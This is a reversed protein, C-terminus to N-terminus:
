LSAFGALPEAPVTAAAESAPQATKAGAITGPLVEPALAGLSVYIKLLDDVKMEPVPTIATEAVLVLAGSMPIPATPLYVLRRREGAINYVVQSALLALVDVGNGGGGFRCSVVNM